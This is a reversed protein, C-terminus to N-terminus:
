CFYDSVNFSQNKGRILIYSSILPTMNIIIIFVLLDLHRISKIILVIKLYNLFITLLIKDFKINIFTQFDIQDLKIFLLSIIINNFNIIFLSAGLAPIKPMALKFTIKLCLLYLSLYFISILSYFKIKIDKIKEQFDKYKKKKIINTLNIQKEANSESHVDLEFISKVEAFSNNHSSYNINSYADEKFPSFNDYNDNVLKTSAFFNSNNGIYTKTPKLNYIKTTSNHVKKSIHKNSFKSYKYTPKEFNYQKFLNKYRIESESLQSEKSDLSSEEVSAYKERVPTLIINKNNDMLDLSPKSFFSSKRKQYNMKQSSKRNLSKRRPLKGGVYELISSPNSNKYIQYNGLENEEM